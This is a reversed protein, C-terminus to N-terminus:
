IETMIPKGHDVDQEWPREFLISHVMGALTGVAPYDKVKGKEIMDPQISQIRGHLTAPMDKSLQGDGLAARLQWMYLPLNHPDEWDVPERIYLGLGPGRKSEIETSVAVVPTLFRAPDGYWFPLIAQHEGHGYKIRCQVMREFLDYISTHETYELIQIEPATTVGTVIVCGPEMGAPYGVAGLITAYTKGSETDHLQAPKLERMQGTVEAWDHRAQRTEANYSDTIVQIM